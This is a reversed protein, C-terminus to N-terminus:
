EGKMPNQDNIDEAVTANERGGHASVFITEGGVKFWASGANSIQTIYIRYVRRRYRIMLGSNLRLGYGSATQQLGQRMWEPEHQILESRLCYITPLGHRDIDEPQFDKGPEQEGCYACKRTIESAEEADKAWRQVSSLWFPGYILRALRDAKMGEMCNRDCYLGRRGYHYLTLPQKM